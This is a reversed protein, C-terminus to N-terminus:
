DWYHSHMSFRKRTEKPIFKHVLGLKYGLYKSFAEGMVYPCWLLEGNKILYKFGERIYMLGVYETKAYELVWSNSRLFVGIDFYRKFQQKLSYNHSHLVQADPAYAIRYGRLILQGAILMDENMIVKETFGGLLEFEKKRIASCSNSFFFTKIGLEQLDERGKVFPTDPYNFLRAFRETPKADDNPLQKGFVAAIDKQELPKVLNELFYNNIPLADQTLFVLIDGQSKSAALNRTGGHDFSNQIIIKTKANYSEAIRITNDSSSSDIVIIECPVTQTTLSRLLKELVLGANHTPIIVSVM